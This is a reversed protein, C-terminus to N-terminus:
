SASSAAMSVPSWQVGGHAIQSANFTVTAPTAGAASESADSAEQKGEGAKPSKDGDRPQTQATEGSSSRGDDKAGKQDGTAQRSCASLIACTLVGLAITHSRRSSTM